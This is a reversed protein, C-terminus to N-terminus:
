ATGWVSVRQANNNEADLMQSGSHECGLLWKQGEARHVRPQLFAQFPICAMGDQVGWEPGVM